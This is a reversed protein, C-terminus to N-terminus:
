RGRRRRDGVVAPPDSEPRGEGVDDRAVGVALAVDEDPVREGARGGPDADGGVTGLRVAAAAVGCSLSPRVARRTGRATRAVEHGAVGVPREVDEDAIAVGVAVPDEVLGTRHARLDHAAAAVGPLRAFM